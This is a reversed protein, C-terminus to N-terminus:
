GATKSVILDTIRDVCSFHDLEMIEEPLFQLHFEKELTCILDMLKFSDLVRTVILQEDPQIDRCCIEECIKQIKEKM